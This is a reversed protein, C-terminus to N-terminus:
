QSNSASVSEREKLVQYVSMFALWNEPVENLVAVGGQLFRSITAEDFRKRLLDEQFDLVLKEHRGGRRLPIDLPIWRWRRLFLPFEDASGQLNGRIGFLVSRGNADELAVVISGGDIMAYADVVDVPYELDPLYRGLYAVTGAVSLIAFVVWLAIFLFKSM